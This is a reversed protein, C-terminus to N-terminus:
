AKLLKEELILDEVLRRDREAHEFLQNTPRYYREIGNDADQRESGDEVSCMLTLSTQTDRDIEM